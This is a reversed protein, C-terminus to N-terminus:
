AYLGVTISLTHDRSAGLYELSLPHRLNVHTANSFQSSPVGALSGRLMERLLMPERWNARRGGYEVERLFASPYRFRM